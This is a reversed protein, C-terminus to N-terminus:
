REFILAYKITIIFQSSLIIIGTPIATDQTGTTSQESHINTNRQQLNLHTEEDMPLNRTVQIAQEIPATYDLTLFDAFNNQLKVIVTINDNVLQVFWM